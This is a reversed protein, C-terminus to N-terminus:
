AVGGDGGLWRRRLRGPQAARGRARRAPRLVGVRQRRLATAAAGPARPRHDDPALGLGARPRRRGARRLAGPGPGPRRDGRDAPRDGGPAGLLRQLGAPRLPRPAAADVVAVRDGARGAAACLMAQRDAAIRDAPACGLARRHRTNVMACGSRWSPTSTRRPPSRGAPCSRPRWTATPGSSWARPRRTPRAQLGGGEHGAHRPVGPVGGDAGAEGGAVPRGRGRRGLGAGAAGGGPRRDAAVVRRVPGAGHRSPILVASLWRSYGSVM